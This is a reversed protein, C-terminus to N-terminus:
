IHSGKIPKIQYQVVPCRTIGDVGREWRLLPVRYNDHSIGAICTPEFDKVAVIWISEFRRNLKIASKWGYEKGANIAETKTPFAKIVGDEIPQQLAQELSDVIM